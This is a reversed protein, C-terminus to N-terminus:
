VPQNIKRCPPNKLPFLRCASLNALFTPMFLQLLQSLQTALQIQQGPAHLYFAIAVGRLVVSFFHIL